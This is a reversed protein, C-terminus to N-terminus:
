NFIERVGRRRRVWLRAVVWADAPGLRIGRHSTAVRVARSLRSSVFNVRGAVGVGDRGSMGDRGRSITM